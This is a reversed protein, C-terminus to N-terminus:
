KLSFSGFDQNFVPSFIVGDFNVRDSVFTTVQRNGYPAWPAQEMVKKDLDAYQSEVDPNLQQENLTDMQKNLAKDDFQAYNNNNTAHIAEGNLLIGFFDNPHPFDQFWDSFGIDLNPTKLDGITTFYTSGNVIKLKANFGLQKLVDQLYAGARDNPEEDDTWVTIDKDSPNAQQILQKAKNIDHPYLEFKSYGPMNPPLVQQTPVLLSGYVRQLAAPDIAYNIAQRVKLDDFPAQTTNMWYYYTSVTVEKRFRDPYKSEVEPIRDTPPPDIMFDAQNQEVQTTQSSLNAVVTETIKDAHPTPVNPVLKSNTKEWQPNRELVFQHGPDSKSIMYPGTSPPPNPTQDKAPTDPPVMATFPVALEDQLQGNPKTLQITIKGTKDDTKIGSISSAKGSQYDSAGVIGAFFPAGGSDVDFLRQMTSQFDSAKVPTGDSYKLGQQLQFTYTKGDSSITPMDKALGPVIETGAKGAAHKFTLLPLYTSYEAEWGDVTYSLQPDLYDPFSTEDFKLDGGQQGSTSSSSGGCSALGLAAIALATAAAMAGIRKRDRVRTLWSM